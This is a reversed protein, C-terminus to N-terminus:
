LQPKKTLYILYANFALSLIFFILVLYYGVGYSILLYYPPKDLYYATSRSIGIKSFIMLIVGVGSLIINYIKVQKSKMLSLLLGLVALIFAGLAYFDQMENNNGYSFGQGRPITTGFAIDFGSLRYQSGGCSLNLFPLSFSLIILVFFVPSLKKM